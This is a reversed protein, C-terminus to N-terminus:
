SSEVICDAPRVQLHRFSREKQQAAKVHEDKVITLYHAGAYISVPQVASDALLESMWQQATTQLEGGIGKDLEGLESLCLM